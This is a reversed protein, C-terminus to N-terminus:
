GQASTREHQGLLWSIVVRNFDEAAEYQVWHGCNRFVHLEAQPFRRLMSVQIDFPVFRDYAGYVILVPSAVNPLNPTQDVFQTRTANDLFADRFGASVADEVAKWRMELLEETVKSQDFFFLRVAKDMLERSPNQTVEWLTAAGHSPGSEFISQGAVAGMLVNYDLKDPHYVAFSIAEVGGKSNGMLSARPIELLRMFEALLDASARSADEGQEFLHSSSKGYNPMDILITRFHKSFPEINLYYNFWGSSGIGGGHIFIVVEKLEPSAEHYHIDIGNVKIYKETNSYTLAGSQTTGLSM